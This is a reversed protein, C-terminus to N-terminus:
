QCHADCGMGSEASAILHQGASLNVSPDNASARDKLM